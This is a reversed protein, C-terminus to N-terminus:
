VVGLMILFFLVFKYTANLLLTLEGVAKLFMKIWFLRYREM